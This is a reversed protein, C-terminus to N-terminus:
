FHLDGGVLAGPEVHPGNLIQRRMSDEIDDLYFNWERHDEPKLGQEVIRVRKVLDLDEKPVKHRPLLIGLVHMTKSGSEQIILCKRDSVQGYGWGDASFSRISAEPRTLYINLRCTNESIKGLM